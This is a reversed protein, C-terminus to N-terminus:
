LVEANLRCPVKGHLETHDGLALGAKRKHLGAHEGEAVALSCRRRAVAVEAAHERRNAGDLASSFSAMPPVASQRRSRDIYDVADFVGDAFVVLFLEFRGGFKLLITGM